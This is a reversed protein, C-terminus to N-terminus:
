TSISKEPTKKPSPIDSVFDNTKIEEKDDAPENIVRSLRTPIRPTSEGDRLPEKEGHDKDHGLSHTDFAVKDIFLILAYGLFVIFFPLPFGASEVGGGHLNRRSNEPWDFPDSPVFVVDESHDHETEHIYEQYEEAAEPLIHILAIALFIGGSFANALGIVSMNKRCATILYPLVGSIFALAAILVIFVLKIFTLTQDSYVM